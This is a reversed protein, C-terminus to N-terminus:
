SAHAAGVAGAGPPETFTREWCGARVSIWVLTGWLVYGVAAHIARIPPDLRLLVAAIGLMVQLVALAAATLTAGALPTRRSVIAVHVFLGLLAVGLWRHTWHVVALWHGPLWDGSCLPFDPCALGAGSHRVYGGLALQVLLVALGARILRAIKPASSGLSDRRRSGSALVVLGGLILLATVLHATSILHPLRLLVTIGGLAIQVILLALLAIGVRRTGRPSRRRITAVITALLLVSAAAATLRHGYEILVDPLFPPILQGRCLPWDPCALGSGTASVVNGVTMLMFVAAVAAWSLATV